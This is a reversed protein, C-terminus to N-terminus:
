AAIGEFVCNPNGAAYDRALRVASDPRSIPFRGLEEIDDSDPRLIAVEWSRLDGDVMVWVVIAAKEAVPPASM